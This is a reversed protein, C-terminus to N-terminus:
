RWTFDTRGTGHRHEAIEVADGVHPATSKGVLVQAARGDDLRVDVTLGQEVTLSSKGNYPGVATVTGPVKRTTVSADLGEFWFAAVLGALVAAVGGARKLWQLRVERELQRRLDERM